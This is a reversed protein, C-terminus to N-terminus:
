LLIIDSNNKVGAHIGASSFYIQSVMIKVCLKFDSLRWFLDM